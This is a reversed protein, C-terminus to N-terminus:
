RHHELVSQGETVCLLAGAAKVVVACMARVGISAEVGICSLCELASPVWRETALGLLPLLQLPLQQLMLQQLVSLGLVGIARADVACM